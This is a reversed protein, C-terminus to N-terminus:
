PAKFELRKGKDTLPLTQRGVKDDIRLTGTVQTRDDLTLLVNEIGIKFEWLAGGRPKLRMEIEPSADEPSKFRFSGDPHSRFSGPGIMTDFVVGSPSALHITVAEAVPDITIGAPLTLEGKWEIENKEASAGLEIELEKTDLGISRETSAVQGHVEQWLSNGGGSEGAGWAAFASGASPPLQSAAITESTTPTTAAPDNNTVNIVFDGNALKGIEYSNHFGNDWPFPISNGPTTNLIQVQRAKSVPDRGLMLECHHVGDDLILRWGVHDADWAPSTDPIAPTRVLGRFTAVNQPNALESSVHFYLLSAANDPDAILLGLGPIARPVLAGSSAWVAPDPEGNATTPDTFVYDFTERIAAHAISVVLASAAILGLLAFTVFRKRM